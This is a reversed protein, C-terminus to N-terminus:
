RAVERREEWEKMSVYKRKRKKNGIKESCERREVVKEEGKCGCKKQNGREIKDVEEYWIPSEYNGCDHVM